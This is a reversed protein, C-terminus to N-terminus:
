LTMSGRPLRSSFFAFTWREHDQTLPNYFGTNHYVTQALREVVRRLHEYDFGGTSLGMQTLLWYPTATLVNTESYRLTLSLLSWLFYDDNAKLPELACGVKVIAERREGGGDTFKYRTSFSRIDNL